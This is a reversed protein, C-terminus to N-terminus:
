AGEPKPAPEAAPKGPPPAQRAGRRRVPPKRVKWIVEAPFRRAWDLGAFNGFTTTAGEPPQVEILDEVILGNATFMRLWEGYGRRHYSSGGAENADQGFYSGRLTAGLRGAEPNWCLAVLPSPVLVVLLGRGRLVRAAEAVAHEPRALAIAGHDSVVADFSESAFPLAEASGQVLKVDAGADGVVKVAHALQRESIEIGVPRAGLGALTTLGRAAGCGLELMDRDIVDGLVGLEPDPVSWVGWRIEDGTALQEGHDRQYADSRANWFERNRHDRGRMGPDGDVPGSPIARSMGCWAPFERRGPEAANRDDGDRGGSM